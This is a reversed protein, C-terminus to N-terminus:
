GHGAFATKADRFVADNVVIEHPFTTYIVDIDPPRISKAGIYLFARVTGSESLPAGILPDDMVRRQLPIRPFAGVYQGMIHFQLSLMSGAKHNQQLNFIL